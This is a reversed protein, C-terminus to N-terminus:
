KEESHVKEIRIIEVAREDIKGLKVIRNMAKRAVQRNGGKILKGLRLIAEEFNLNRKNKM